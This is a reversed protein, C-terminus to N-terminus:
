QTLQYNNENAIAEGRQLAYGAGPPSMGLRRALATLSIALERMAWFCFLSRASVRRQERGRASVEQVKVRYIEAVREAIKELDYGRRRLACRRPYHEEAQALVSDVFGSDGLLREDSKIHDQGRIGLKEAEAWGGLPRFM